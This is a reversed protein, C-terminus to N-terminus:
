PKKICVQTSDLNPMDKDIRAITLTSIPKERPAPRIKAKPIKPM